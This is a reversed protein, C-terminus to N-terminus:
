FSDTVDTNTDDRRQAMVTRWARMEDASRRVVVYGRVNHFTKREFGLDVFSRGLVVTSLKQTINAGVIQLALSVPM